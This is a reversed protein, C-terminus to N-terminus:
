EYGDKGGARGAKERWTTGQDKEETADYPQAQVEAEAEQGGPLNKVAARFLSRTVDGFQPRNVHYVRPPPSGHKGKGGQGHSGCRIGM